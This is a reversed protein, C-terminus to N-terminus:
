NKEIRSIKIRKCNSEVEEWDLKVKIPFTEKTLDIGSNSPVDDFRHNQTELTINWGGCCPCLALDPGTILGESKYTKMAEKSCSFAMSVLLVCIVLSTKMYQIKTKSVPLLLITPM